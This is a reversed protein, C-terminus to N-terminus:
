GAVMLEIRVLVDDVEFPLVFEINRERGAIVAKDGKRIPLPFAAHLGTPSIVLKSATQDIEGVLEEARVARVSARVGEADFPIQIGGPGLTLRRITIDQGRRALAADLRAVRGEASDDLRM